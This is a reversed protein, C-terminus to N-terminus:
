GKLYADIGKALGAAIKDQYSSSALRLDEARNTMYGMEVIACPMKAWNIGTMENTYLTELVPQGTSKAQYKSLTRALRQGNAIVDKKLYRNGSGAAMGRVGNLYSAGSLGDCHLRIMLDCNNKNAIQARDINSLTVNHKTRTMVVKYGKAELATRLKLGVQLVVEYENLRSWPGYTGSSVKTKYTGSGPGIPERSYMGHAQHGPDICVVTEFVKEGFKAKESNDGFRGYLQYYLYFNRYGTGLADRLEPHEEYYEKVNFSSIAQHGRAMGKKVFYELIAEPDTGVAKVVAPHHKTYYKYNYVRNYQKGNYKTPYTEAEATIAPIMFLMMVLIVAKWVQIKERRM